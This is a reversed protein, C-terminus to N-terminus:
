CDSARVVCNKGAAKARYLAGDADDFFRKRNGTYQAVGVSVTVRTPRLSDDLIFSSEAITTRLKEAVAYGGAEDTNSALVAHTPAHAGAEALIRQKLDLVEPAAEVVLDVGAVADTMATTTRVLALAATRDEETAKGLDVAKRLNAGIRALGRAVAEEDIDYLAVRAGSQAAVQAIGHGMTGAGIVAVSRIESM